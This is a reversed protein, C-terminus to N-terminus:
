ELVIILLDTASVDPITPRREITHFSPAFSKMEAHIKCLITVKMISIYIHSRIKLVDKVPYFNLSFKFVWWVNLLLTGIIRLVINM